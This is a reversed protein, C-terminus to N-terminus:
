PGRSQRAASSGGPRTSAATCDSLCRSAAREALASDKTWLSRKWASKGAWPAPMVPRLAPPIVRHDYYTGAPDRILYPMLAM